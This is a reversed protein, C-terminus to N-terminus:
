INTNTLKLNIYTRWIKTNFGLGLTIIDQVRDDYDPFELTNEDKLNSVKKTRESTPLADAVM